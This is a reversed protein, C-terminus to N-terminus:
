DGRGCDAPKKVGAEILALRTKACNMFDDHNKERVKIETVAGKIDSIDRAIQATQNTGQVNGAIWAFVGVAVVTAINSAISEKFKEWM